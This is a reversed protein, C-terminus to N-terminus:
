AVLHPDLGCVAHVVHRVIEAVLRLAKDPAGAKTLLETLRVTSAHWFRAHLRRLTHRIIGEDGSHLLRIAKGLDFSQWDGATTDAQTEIERAATRGDPRAGPVPPVALAGRLRADASSSALEPPPNKLEAAAAASAAEERRQAAAAAALAEKDQQAEFTDEAIAEPADPEPAGQRM